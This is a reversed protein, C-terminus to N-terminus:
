IAWRGCWFLKRWVCNCKQHMCNFNWNFICMILEIVFAWVGSYGRVAIAGRINWDRVLIFVRTLWWFRRYKKCARALRPDIPLVEFRTFMKIYIAQHSMVEIDGPATCVHHASVYSSIRGTSFPPMHSCCSGCGPDIRNRGICINALIKGRTLWDVPGFAHKAASSEPKSLTHVCTIYVYLVCM